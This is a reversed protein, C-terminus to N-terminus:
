FGSINFFFVRLRNQTKCMGSAPANQNNQPPVVQPQGAQGPGSHFQQPQAPQQQQQLGQQQPGGPGPRFFNGFINQGPHHNFAGHPLPPPPPPPPLARHQAEAQQLFLLGFVIVIKLVAKEDSLEM